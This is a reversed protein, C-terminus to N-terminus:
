YKVVDEDREIIRGAPSFILICKLALGKQGLIVCNVHFTQPMQVSLFELNANRYEWALVKQRFSLQRYLVQSM